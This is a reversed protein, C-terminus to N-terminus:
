GGGGWPLLGGGRGFGGDGCGEEGKEGDEGDGVAGRAGAGGVAVERSVGGVFGGGVENKFNGGFAFGAGGLGGGILDDDTRLVGRSVVCSGGDKGM